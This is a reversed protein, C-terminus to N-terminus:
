MLKKRKKARLYLTNINQAKKPDLKDALRNLKETKPPILESYHIDLKATANIVAKMLKPDLGDKGGVDDQFLIGQKLYRGYYEHLCDIASKNKNESRQKWDVYLIPAEDPLYARFDVEVARDLKKSILDYSTMIKNLAMHFDSENKIEALEEFLTVTEERFNGMARLKAFLEQAGAAVREHSITENQKVIRQFHEQSREQQNLISIVTGRVLEANEDANIVHGNTSMDDDSIASGIFNLNSM